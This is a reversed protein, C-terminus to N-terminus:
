SVGSQERRTNFEWVVVYSEKKVPAIECKLQTTIQNGDTEGM